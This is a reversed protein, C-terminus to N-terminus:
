ASRRCSCCWGAWAGRACVSIIRMPDVPVVGRVALDALWEIERRRPAIAVHESGSRRRGDHRRIALEDGVAIGILTLDADMHGVVRCRRGAAEAGIREARQFYCWWLAGTGTFAIALALLRELELPEETFADGTTLV